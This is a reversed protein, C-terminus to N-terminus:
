GGARRPLPCPRVRLALPQQPSALCRTKCRVSHLLVAAHQQPTRADEDAYSVLSVSGPVTLKEVDGTHGDHREEAARGFQRGDAGHVLDDGVAPAINEELVHQVLGLAPQGLCKEKDQFPVPSRGLCRRRTAPCLLRRHPDDVHQHAGAISSQGLVEAEEPVAPFSPLFHHVVEGVVAEHERGHRLRSRGIQAHRCSARGKENSGSGSGSVEGGQRGRQSPSASAAELPVGQALSWADWMSTHNSPHSFSLM